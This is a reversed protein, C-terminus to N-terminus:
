DAVVTRDPLDPMPKLGAEQSPKEVVGNLVGNLIVHVAPATSSLALPAPHSQRRQSPCSKAHGPLQQTWIRNKGWLLFANYIFLFPM